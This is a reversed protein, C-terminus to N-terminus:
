RTEDETRETQAETREEITEEQTTAIGRQLSRTGGQIMAWLDNLSPRYPGYQSSFAYKWRECIMPKVTKATTFEYGSAVRINFYGTYDSSPGWSVPADGENTINVSGTATPSRLELRYSSSGGSEPMGTFYYLGAPITVPISFFAAGSGTNKGTLTISYDDNVTFTVGNTTQTQAASINLVNKAGEDILKVIGSTLTADAATRAATEEAILRPCTDLQQYTSETMQGDAM